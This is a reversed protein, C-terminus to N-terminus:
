EAPRPERAAEGQSERKAGDIKRRAEGASVSKPYKVIVSEYAQIADPVKGAKLYLDGVAELASPSYYTDLTDGMLRYLRVAGDLDGRGAAILALERLSQIKILGQGQEAARRAFIAAAEDVKGQRKLLEGQAFEKLWLTGIEGKVGKVLLLRELADNARPEDTYERVTVNYYSVADDVSGSYLKIEGLNFFAEQAYAPKWDTGVLDYTTFAEDLRGAAVLCDGKFLIADYKADGASSAGIVRDVRAIAEDLAGQSRYIGALAVDADFAPQSDPYKRSLEDYTVKAQETLGGALECEAKSLLLGPIESKNEPLGLALGYVEACQRACGKVQAKAAFHKVTEASLEGARAMAAIEGYAGECDGDALYIQWLAGRVIEEAAPTGAASRLKATIARRAEPSQAMGVIGDIATKSDRETEGVLLYEGTALDYKGMDRYVRAADLALLGASGTAKRARVVLDVAEDSAGSRSLILFAMQYTWAEGPALEVLRDLLVQGAQKRDTALYLSALDSLGKPDKPHKDAFQKLVAEARDYRKTQILAGTLTSIIVPDDPYAGYLRELLQIAADFSGVRLLARADRLTKEKADRSSQSPASPAGQAAPAGAGAPGPEQSSVAAPGALALGLLVAAVTVWRARANTEARKVM